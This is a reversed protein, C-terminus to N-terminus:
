MKYSLRLYGFQGPVDYTTPDFNNLGCSICAPPDVDFLNNVGLTLGWRKDLFGPTWSLQLDTYFTSGLKNGNQSETVASIYRGTVSAGFDGINWDITANSKFRPYAQDPSGRETGERSTTAVGTATPTTLTYDFLFNANWSFGFSGAGGEATRMSLTVDLGSTEIGAINQLLGRIQTIAGTSSRTIASCSVSDGTQACRDLVVAADNAQIAGNVEIHYYNAEISLNRLGGGRAWGPSYVGGIVYSESTEAKLANNGGTIVSLQPNLQVYSNDNPVGNAVCNTRINAPTSASMGSCPDVLEQDFRSPTGFLEGISPARFGESWSGRLLLDDVPRWNLGAKLSTNSGSTSYDSYRAALSLDLSRAVSSDKLLPVRLEGYVENANYSGRSPQAPIDSGFGAAVIPDPDFSGKLWRHEYGIALGVSGAPLEFLDGTLNASFDALEQRSRARETFAVWDIMAQTISGEGGFINFPVCTGTCNAVPGLAQQLRQANVNGLFTQKASNESYIGNIDWHWEKGGIEFDGDLTSSFYFTDVTQSYRRPGIEVFRRAIFDYNRTGGTAGSDLTGFPNFPNTADIIITDLLNGNGSDPGVFLPIPAAQNRSERHNYAGKFSFRLNSGLEQGFNVFVGYRESPTLILNYPAFNFRDLTVFDRFDDTASGSVYNPRGNIPAHTLTLNEGLVLFRGLPTASSCGGGLCSTSGPNPWQSINRDASSVENQKVYNLGVVLSTGSNKNQTGWTLNYNQTTGDGQRYQGVQATANFGSWNKKTIINVVGGIADSGYITSAGDLLVEVRDIMGEPITNLDTSGPIGSAAAGNVWRLGDVLVLTRRSTLYRLDIEASGAGVGGGDPPNGFNGSNNFKSNLAGGASPLRQLVDAVSSLGTKAIAENDVFTIPATQDLPDHRIRSGTVVITGGAEDAATDQALAPVAGLPLTSVILAFLGTAPLNRLKSM